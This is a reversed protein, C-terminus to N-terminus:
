RIDALRVGRAESVAIEYALWTCMRYPKCHLGKYICVGRLPCQEFGLLRPEGNMITVGGNHKDSRFRDECGHVTESQVNGHLIQRNGNPRPVVSPQM